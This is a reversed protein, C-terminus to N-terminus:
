PQINLTTVQIQVKIFHCITIPFHRTIYLNLQILCLKYLQLHDMKGLFVWLIQFFLKKGSIFGRGLYNSCPYSNKVRNTVLQSLLSFTPSDVSKGWLVNWSSNLKQPWSWFISFLFWLLARFLFRLILWPNCPTYEPRNWNFFM